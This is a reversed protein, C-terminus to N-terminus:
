DHQNRHFRGKEHMLGMLISGRTLVLCQIFISFYLFSLPFFGRPLCKNERRKRGFDDEEKKKQGTKKSVMLATRKLKGQERFHKLQHIISGGRAQAEKASTHPGITRRRAM